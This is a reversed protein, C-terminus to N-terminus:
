KGKPQYPLGSYVQSLLRQANERIAQEDDTLVKCITDRSLLEEFFAKREHMLSSRLYWEDTSVLREEHIKADEFTGALHLLNLDCFLDYTESNLAAPHTKTAHAIIMLGPQRCCVVADDALKRIAKLGCDREFQALSSTISVQDVAVYQYLAACVLDYPAKISTHLSQLRMFIQYLRWIGYVNNGCNDHIYKIVGHMVDPQSSWYRYAISQVIRSMLSQVMSVIGTEIGQVTDTCVVLDAFASMMPIPYQQNIYDDIQSQTYTPNEALMNARQNQESCECVIVVRSTSPWLSNDNTFYGPHKLIVAGSQHYMSDINDRVRQYLDRSYLQATYSTMSLGAYRARLYENTRIISDIEEKIDVVPIGLCDQLREVVADVKTGSNGVVIIRM